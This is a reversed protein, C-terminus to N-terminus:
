GGFPTKIDGESFGDITVTCPLKRTAHIARGIDRTFVTAHLGYDTDRALAIAEDIGNVTMVGLLPCFIEERAMKMEATVGTFVIPQM